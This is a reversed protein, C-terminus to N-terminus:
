LILNLAVRSGGFSEGPFPLDDVGTPLVKEYLGKLQNHKSIAVMRKTADRVMIQADDVGPVHGKVFILDLTTDVRVVVLNQTTITKGGMRGAMKKGPFVRGPGQLYSFRTYDPLLPM